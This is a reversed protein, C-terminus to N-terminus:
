VADRIIQQLKKIRSLVSMDVHKDGVDIIVGAMITPDVREELVLTQGPSLLKRLGKQVKDLEPGNLKKATTVTAKVQGKQEAAIDEFKKLIDPLQMTRKNEVVVNFFRKTVDTANMKDLVASLGKSRSTAPVTPDSLFTRFTESEKLIEAFQSLEKEVTGLQNAKAAAM